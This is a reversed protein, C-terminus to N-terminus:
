ARKAFNGKAPRSARAWSCSQDLGLSVTQACPPRMHGWGEALSRITTKIPDDGLTGVSRARGRAGFLRGFPGRSTGRDAM